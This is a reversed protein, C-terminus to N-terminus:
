VTRASSTRRTREEEENAVESMEVRKGEEGNESGRTSASLAARIRVDNEGVGLKSLREVRSSDDHSVEVGNEFLGASKEEGGVLDLALLRQTQHKPIAITLM